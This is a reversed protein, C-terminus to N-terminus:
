CGAYQFFVLIAKAEITIGVQGRPVQVETTLIQISRCHNLLKYAREKGNGGGERM